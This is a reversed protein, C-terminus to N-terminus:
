VGGGMLWGGGEGGPGVRGAALRLLGGYNKIGLATAAAREVLFCPPSHFAHTVPYLEDRWARLKGEARMVQPPPPAASHISCALASCPTHVQDKHVVRWAM